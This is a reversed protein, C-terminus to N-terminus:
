GADDKAGEKPQQQQGYKQERAELVARRVPDALLHALLAEREEWRWERGTITEIYVVEALGYEGGTKPIHTAKTLGLEPDEHAQRAHDEFDLYARPEWRTLLRPARDREAPLRPENEPM